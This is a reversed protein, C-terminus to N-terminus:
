NRNLNSLIRDMAGQIKDVQNSSDRRSKEDVFVSRASAIFSQAQSKSLGADRLASELDRITNIEDASKVASIRAKSDAPFTCISVERLASVNKIVRGSWPDEDDVLEYDKKSLMIGVSLGSMSGAKLAEYVERAKQISLTLEGEVYLGQERDEVKTYVGIPVEWTGHNLFVPLNKAKAAVKAYAGPLITDGYSDTGNYKSAFGAFTGKDGDTKLECESLSLTKQITIDM